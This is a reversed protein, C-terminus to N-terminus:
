AYDPIQIFIPYQSHMLCFISSFQTLHNPYFNRIKPLISLIPEKLPINRQGGLNEEFNGIPIFYVFNENKKM